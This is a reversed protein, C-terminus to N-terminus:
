KVYQNLLLFSLLLVIIFTIGGVALAIVGLDQTEYIVLLSSGVALLVCWAIDIKVQRKVPSKFEIEKDETLVKIIGSALIIGLLINLNFFYSVIGEQVTEALLLILYTVLMYQFIENFIINIKIKWLKLKLRNM